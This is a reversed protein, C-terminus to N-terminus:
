LEYSDETKYGRLAMLVIKIGITEILLYRGGLGTHESIYVKTGARYGCEIPLQLADRLLTKNIPVGALIGENMFGRVACEGTWYADWPARSSAWLVLNALDTERKDYEGQPNMHRVISDGKDTDDCDEPESDTFSRVIQLDVSILAARELIVVYGFGKVYLLGNFDCDFISKINKCREM